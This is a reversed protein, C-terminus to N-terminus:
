FKQVSKQIVNNGSRIIFRYYGSSINEISLTENYLGKTKNPIVSKLEYINFASIGKNEKFIFSKLQAFFLSCTM